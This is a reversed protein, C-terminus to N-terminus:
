DNSFIIHKEGFINKAKYNALIEEKSFPDIYEPLITIDPGNFSVLGVDTFLENVTTLSSYDAPWEFQVTNAATGNIIKLASQVNNLSMSLLILKSAMEKPSWNRRYRKLRQHPKFDGIKELKFFSSGFESKDLLQMREIPVPENPQSQVGIFVSSSEAHVRLGHKISNYEENFGDDLFDSALYAWAKSFGFKIEREKVKDELVLNTLIIDSIMPWSLRETNICSMIPRESQIKNIILKLESPQYLSIWAPVCYPAQIASGIFAFFTELAMSYILRILLASQHNEKKNKENVGNLFINAVYKYYSPDLGDLFELSKRKVNEDWLCFPRDNVIFNLYQLNFLNKNSM